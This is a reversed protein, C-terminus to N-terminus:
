PELSLFTVQEDGSVSGYNGSLYIMLVPSKLFALPVNQHNITVLGFLFFDSGGSCNYLWHRSKSETNVSISEHELYITARYNPSFHLMQFNKYYYCEQKQFCIYKKMIICCCSLKYFMCFYFLPTSAAARLLSKM